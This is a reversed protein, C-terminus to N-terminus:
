KSRKAGCNACFAADGELKAGCQGCYNTMEGSKGARKRRGLALVGVVALAVILVAIIPLVQATLDNSTSTNSTVQNTQAASMTEQVTTSTLISASATATISGIATAIPQVTATEITQTTTVQPVYPVVNIQFLQSTSAVVQGNIGSIVYAHVQLSWSGVTGRATAQNVVPVTFSSSSPYYPLSLTSLTQSTSADVLDVRVVPLVGPDCSVTLTSTVQFPQGAGVVDPVTLNLNVIRCPIFQGVSVQPSSALIVAAILLSVLVLLRNRGLM